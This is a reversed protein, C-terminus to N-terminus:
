GSHGAATVLFCSRPDDRGKGGRRQKKEAAGARHGRFGPRAHHRAWGLQVTLEPVPYDHDKYSATQQDLSM